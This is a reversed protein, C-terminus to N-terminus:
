IYCSGSLFHYARAVPQKHSGLNFKFPKLVKLLDYSM